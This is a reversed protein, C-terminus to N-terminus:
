TSVFSVDLEAAAQQSYFYQQKKKCEHNVKYTM